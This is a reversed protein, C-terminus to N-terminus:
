RVRVAEVMDSGGAAPLRGTPVPAGCWVARSRPAGLSVLFVFV